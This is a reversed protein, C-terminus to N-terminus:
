GHLHVCDDNGETSTRKRLVMSWPTSLTGPKRELRGFQSGRGRVRLRTNRGPELPPSPAPPALESSPVSVRTCKPIYYLGEVGHILSRYVTCYIGFCQRNGLFQGLSTNLPLENATLAASGIKNAIKKPQYVNHLNRNRKPVLGGAPGPLVYKFLFKNQITGLINVCIQLCLHLAFGCFM